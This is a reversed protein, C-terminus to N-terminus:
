RVSDVFKLWAEPQFGLVSGTGFDKTDRVMARAGDASVGQEICEGGQASYSSKHWGTAGQDHTM